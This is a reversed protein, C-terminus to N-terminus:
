KVTVTLHAPTWCCAFGPIHQGQSTLFMSGDDALAQVSYVGAESFIASTVAHGDKVPTSDNSFTVHGPGRYKSWVVRLGIPSGPAVNRPAKPLGDDTVGVSLTIAHGVSATVPSGVDVEPPTNGNQTDRHVDIQQEPKLSGPVRETVGRISLTWTLTDKFDKPVAVAFLQKGRRPLFHTPQGRDQPGPTFGNNSGIPIDLEEKWNRNMYGFYLSVTGDPNPEWGEFVPAVSQGSDRRPDMLQMGPRGSQGPTQGHLSVSVGLLVLGVGWGVWAMPRLRQKM